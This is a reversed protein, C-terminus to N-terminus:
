EDIVKLKIRINDGYVAKKLDVDISYEKVVIQVAKVIRETDHDERLTEYEFPKDTGLANAGFPFDPPVTIHIGNERCHINVGLDRSRLDKELTERFYKNKYRM